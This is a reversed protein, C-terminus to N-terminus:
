AARQDQWRQDVAMDMEVLSQEAQGPHGVLGRAVADGVADFGFALHARRSRNGLCLGAGVQHALDQGAARQVHAAVDVDVVLESELVEVLDQFHALAEAIEDGDLDDGERLAADQARRARGVQQIRGDGLAGVKQASEIWHADVAIEVAMEIRDKGDGFAAAHADVDMQVVAALAADGPPAM